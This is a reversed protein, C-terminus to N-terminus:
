KKIKSNVVGYNKSIQGVIAKRRTKRCKTNPAGYQNKGLLSFAGIQDQQEKKRIKENLLEKYNKYENKPPKAGLKIALAIQAKKKDTHTSGSIAFNIVDHKAKKIDFDGSDQQIKNKKIETAYNLNSKFTDPNTKIKPKHSKFVTATFGESDKKKLLSAKTPVYEFNNNTQDM